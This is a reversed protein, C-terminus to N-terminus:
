TKTLFLGNAIFNSKAWINDGVYLIAGFPCFSNISINSAFPNFTLQKFLHTVTKAFLGKKSSM